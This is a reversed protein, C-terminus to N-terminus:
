QLRIQDLPEQSYLIIVEKVPWSEVIKSIEPELALIKRCPEIVVLQNAQVLALAKRQPHYVEETIIYM